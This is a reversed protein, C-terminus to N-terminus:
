KDGQLGNSAEKKFEKLENRIAEKIKEPLEEFEVQRGLHDNSEQSSYFVMLWHPNRGDADLSFAQHLCRGMVTVPNRLVVTYRDLFSRHDEYIGAILEKM